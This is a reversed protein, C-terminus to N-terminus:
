LSSLRVYGEKFVYGRLNATVLVWIRLDFKRNKILMPKELYKQVLFKDTKIVAPVKPIIRIYQNGDFFTEEKREKIQRNAPDRMLVIHQIQESNRKIYDIRKSPSEEETKVLSKQTYGGLNDSIFKYLTQLKSFVQIGRGRNLFTPKVIWLYGGEDNLFTEPISPAKPLIKKLQM